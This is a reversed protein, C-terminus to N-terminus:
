SRPRLYCRTGRPDHGDADEEVVAYPLVMDDKDGEKSCRAPYMDEIAEKRLDLNDSATSVRGERRDPNRSIPIVFTSTDQANLRPHTM